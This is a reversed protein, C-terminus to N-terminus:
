GPIVTGSVSIIKVTCDKEPAKAWMARGINHTEEYKGDAPLKFTLVMRTDNAKEYASDSSTVKWESPCAIELTIEVNNFSASVIPYLKLYVDTYTFNIGISKHTEHKGYTTDIELYEGINETTLEVEKTKGCSCLSCCLVALLVVSIIRKM